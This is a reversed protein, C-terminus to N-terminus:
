PQPRAADAAERRLQHAAAREPDRPHYRVRAVVDVVTRRAEVAVGAPVGLAEGRPGALPAHQDLPGGPRPGAGPGRKWLRRRDRPTIFIVSGRFPSSGTRCSRRM